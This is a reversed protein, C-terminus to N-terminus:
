SAAGLAINQKGSRGTDPHVALGQLNRNGYTYIEPKADARGMFSNGPAAASETLRLIKGAHDTLRQARDSNTVNM